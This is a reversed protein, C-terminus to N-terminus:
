KGRAKLNADPGASMNTPAAGAIEKVALQRRDSSLLLAIQEPKLDALPIRTPERTFTHGARHFESLRVSKVELAVTGEKPTQAAKAAALRELVRASPPQPKVNGM